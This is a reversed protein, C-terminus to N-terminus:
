RILWCVCTKSHAPFWNWLEGPWMEMIIRQRFYVEVPFIMSRWTPSPRKQPSNAGFSKKKFMEEFEATYNQAFERSRVHLVVNNDEYSGQATYNLSGTWVEKGDIVTFKNHMSANSMDGVVEIGQDQLMEPVRRNIADGEM